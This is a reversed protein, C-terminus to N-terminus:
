VDYVRTNPYHSVLKMSQPRDSM